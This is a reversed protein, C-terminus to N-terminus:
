YSLADMATLCAIYIMVQSEDTCEKFGQVMQEKLHPKLVSFCTRVGDVDINLVNQQATIELDM